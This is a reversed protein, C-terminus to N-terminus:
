SVLYEEFRHVAQRPARGRALTGQDTYEFRELGGVQRLENLVGERGYPVLLKLAVMEGESAEDIAQKLQDLGSSQLASIPVVTPYRQGFAAVVRRLGAPGLLDVKNLAVVTPKWGADLEELVQDVTAAQELAAPASADVVRLVVDAYTVEELTARFAAVLDTPLKQIFGVTDTVLVERGSPLELRRVTPDLTAFLRDEAAVGAGTLANMLTSKGANTYGVIAVTSLESRRRATRLQERQSRVHELEEDLARLRRRIRRREVEIQQEGPGGRTGIGGVQRHYDYAGILRPLLHHLQASEVQLRGERTRAHQAFIDLILETRDVVRIKLEKELNRQQRPSLDENCIVLDYRLEERRERMVAVKGRGVFLAPDVQDRRQVESAVVEGGATRTLEELERMQESVTQPSTGLRLVGILYARERRPETTIL